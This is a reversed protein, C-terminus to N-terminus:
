ILDRSVTLAVSNLCCVVCTRLFALWSHVVLYSVLVQLVCSSVFLWYLRLTGLFLVTRFVYHLWAFVISIIEYMHLPYHWWPRECTILLLRGLSPLSSCTPTNLARHSLYHIHMILKVDAIINNDIWLRKLTLLLLWTMRDWSPRPKTALRRCLLSPPM